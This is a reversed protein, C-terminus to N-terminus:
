LKCFSNKSGNNALKYYKHFELVSMAYKIQCNASKEMTRWGTQIRSCKNKCTTNALLLITSLPCVISPSAPLVCIDTLPFPLMM